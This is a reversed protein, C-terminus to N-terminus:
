ASHREALSDFFRTLLAAPRADDTLEHGGFRYVEYGRLRLERDEAVLEAYRRPDARRAEDAYHQIGDCEIVVRARNPLLLLFDMRQRVLGATGRPRVYPDYHLYVQPVLAPIEAGHIGYRQAYARLIREEASNAHSRTLTRHLSTWIEREGAAVMRQRDAWWATLQRWTLGTPGLPRDYVLCYQENEVVTIDNNIADQFVIKPKPGDAAFIL